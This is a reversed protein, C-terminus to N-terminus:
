QGAASVERDLAEVLNRERARLFVRRSREFDPQNADEDEILNLKGAIASRQSVTLRFFRVSIDRLSDMPDAGEEPAAADAQTSEAAAPQAVVTNEPKIWPSLAIRSQFADAGRDQKAIFQGPNAQWVRVHVAVTLYRDTGVGEVELELLNYGPEWNPEEHDPHAAGAAVSVFDRAPLIRNTHEHGFLHVRAVDHLFDSLAKGNGLWSYPHHCLVLHEVGPLRELQFSAPDVFLSGPTDSASSVFASNLGTMRLISGDQFYLDRTARTREPPLLDCFFQGAFTNYPGLAEYLASKADEDSLLGSIIGNLAIPQAAKISQHLSQVVPKSAVSRVVDHNGPIVFVSGLTTGCAGCLTKLWDTAYEFEAKAGAFAIDGSVLVADPARGIRQCQVQADRLLESRLHGNPDMATGIQGARFHIDSLHLLLM